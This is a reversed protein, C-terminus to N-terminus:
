DADISPDTLLALEVDTFYRALGARLKDPLEALEAELAQRQREMVQVAEYGLAALGSRAGSDVMNNHLRDKGVTVRKM